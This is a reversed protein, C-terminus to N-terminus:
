DSLKCRHRRIGAAAVESIGPRRAVSAAHSSSSSRNPGTRMARGYSGTIFPLDDADSRSKAIGTQLELVISEADDNTELRVAKSEVRYQACM